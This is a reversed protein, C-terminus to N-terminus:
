DDGHRRDTEAAVAGLRHPRSEPQTGVAPQARTRDVPLEVRVTTGPSRETEFAMSGGSRRVVWYALWLGLGSGHDIQTIEAEGTIVQYEHAPIGPGTDTIGIWATGDEVGTCIEIRHAPLEAYDIVNDVLEEVARPFVPDAHLPVDIRGRRDITVAPYEERFDRLVSDIAGDLDEFCTQDRRRLLLRSIEYAKESLTGLEASAERLLYLLTLHEDGDAELSDAVGVIVNLTNRFNHRLVRNFLQLHRDREMRDTVDRQIAM